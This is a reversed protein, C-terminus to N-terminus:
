VIVGFFACALILFYFNNQPTGKAVIRKQEEIPPLPIKLSKLSTGNVNPQGTGMSKEYLQEWYFPSEIFLKVYKTFTERNPVVRILYSAFVATIDLDDVLYSKGITGGTRAILIDGNNLGYNELTKDDYKCGPVSEWHVKNNQIDTIRLLRVDKEEPEASANYGYHIKNSIDDLRRWKWGDPLEYPIEEPAIEPLPKSKKIKKEKILREKEAKIKGLLVSAPEDEPDQEVLKGQVALQLILERLKQVSGPAKVTLDFNELLLEASM